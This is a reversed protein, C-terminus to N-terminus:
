VSFESQRKIPPSFIDGNAKQYVVGQSMTEFLRRHKEDSERLAAEAQKRETIDIFTAVAGVIKGDKRQPYSWYEVQISTGDAKWFVEDDAHTGKGERFAQYIKCESAPCPKGDPRTHHIMEHIHKGILEDASKYGLLRLFALNVFTCNGQLDNGYMGETASDLILRIDDESKRLADEALQLEEVQAALAESVDQLEQTREIVRLELEDRSQGLAEEVRKLETIDQSTGLLGIVDGQTNRLPVKSTNLWTITGDIIPLKEIINLKPEGSSIVQLDDERYHESQSSWPFDKDPRGVIDEPSALGAMDALKSNCGLFSLDLDKWFVIGPFNDLVIRTMQRSAELENEAKKRESVDRFSWVRGTIKDGLRQPISLREFVRGDKLYITDFDEAEPTSYLEIVRAFFADPDALKEAVFALLKEDDGAEALAAPADWLKLFNNNYATVKGATDVVLIGDATSELTAGLLSVSGALEKTQEAVLEELCNQYQLLKEEALKRESIDLVTGVISALNGGGDYRGEFTSYYYGISKDPRLFRQEYDGQGHTAIARQILEQDRKHDEPWPSLDLISNIQPKFAAPDLQFIKYLEESWEVDGTAVDWFWYGLHAMEQAERLRRENEHLAREAEARAARETYLALVEEVAHPLKLTNQKLFYDDVGLKFCLVATEEGLVGSIMIVPVDPHLERFLRMATVGDYGPISYDSLFVDYDARALREFDKKNKALFFECKLGGAELTDQILKADHTKDELQLVRIVQKM